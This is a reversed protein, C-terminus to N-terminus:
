FLQKSVEQLKLIRDLVWDEKVFEDTAIAAVDKGEMVQSTGDAWEVCFPTTIAEGPVTGESSKKGLRTSAAYKVVGELDSKNPHNVKRGIFFRQWKKPLPMM